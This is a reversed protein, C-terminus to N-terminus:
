VNQSHTKGELECVLLARSEASINDSRWIFIWLSREILGLIRYVSILWLMDDILKLYACILWLFYSNRRLKPTEGWLDKFKTYEDERYPKEWYTNKIDHRIERVREPLNTFIFFTQSLLTKPVLDIIWVGKSRMKQSLHGITADTNDVTSPLMHKQLEAIFFTWRRTWHIRGQSWVQTYRTTYGHFSM